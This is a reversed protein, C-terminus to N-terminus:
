ADKKGGTPRGRVTGKCMLRTIGFSARILRTIGFSVRILRTIGFSACILRTILEPECRLGSVYSCYVSCGLMPTQLKAIGRSRTWAWRIWGLLPSSDGILGTASGSFKLTLERICFVSRLKRYLFLRDASRHNRSVPLHIPFPATAVATRHRQSVFASLSTSPRALATPFSPSIFNPSRPTSLLCLHQRAVTPHPLFLSFSRRARFLFFFSPLPPTPARM